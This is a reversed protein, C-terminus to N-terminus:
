DQVHAPVITTAEHVREPDNYHPDTGQPQFILERDELGNPESALRWYEQAIKDPDFPGGPEVIGCVAIVSVHVGKPSLDKFLSFALSRLAAKGAALSAWEPYPELALGGGTFLIAGSGKHLMAPAVARSAAFAGVVNVEMERRLADTTLDSPSAPRMVSANYILVDTPGLQDEISNIADLLSAEDGADALAWASQVGLGNLTASLPEIVTSRRAVLGINYGEQGFRSAIAHSLGSGVGIILCSPM